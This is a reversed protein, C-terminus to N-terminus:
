KASKRASKAAFAATKPAPLSAEFAFRARKQSAKNIANDVIQLLL